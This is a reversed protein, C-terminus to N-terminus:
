VYPAHGTKFLAFDILYYGTLEADKGEFKALINGINLDGHQFGTMIDIPRVSNWLGPKQAFTYPNPFVNGQLLLGPTDNSINCNDELFREINGGPNLRYGLWSSIIKQPHVAQKFVPDANWQSLLMKSTTGFLKELKDQQQYSALPRYNNLSQGAIDYFIAVSSDLEIREFALGAIHHKAFGGPAQEVAIRHRELEDMGSKTSKRDLKLVLHSVHNSDLKSVSVLFLSAGTQGGKLEQLLTVKIKKESQAFSLVKQYEAPLSHFEEALDTM